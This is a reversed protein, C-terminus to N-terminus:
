FWFFFFLDPAGLVGEITNLNVRNPRAPGVVTADKLDSKELICPVSSHVKIGRFLVFLHLLPITKKCPLSTAIMDIVSLSTLWIVVLECLMFLTVLM